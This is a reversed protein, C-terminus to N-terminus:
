ELHERSQGEDHDVPGGQAGSQSASDDKQESEYQSSPGPQGQDHGHGGEVEGLVWEDGAVFGSVQESSFGTWFQPTAQAAKKAQYLERAAQQVQEKVAGAASWVTSFEDLAGINLRLQRRLDDDDYQVFCLAWKALHVTSSGAIVCTFFHTHSLIPVRHTILNSIDTASAIAHRTHANLARGSAVERYPACATISKSQSTDLQSLPKHILLSAGYNMMFAQFIMEDVEGHSNIASRKSAPLNLRWDTLLGELKAIEQESADTISPTRIYQGLNRSSLIRYSFSSFERDDDTFHREDLEDPYRPPPIEGSLFEKEECPLAVDTPVDFLAFDTLRHVSAYMGDIIFLEWWTRRLSEELVPIGQGHLLAFPRTNIALDIALKEADLLTERAKDHERTGDLGVLLVMMAQLLFVDRPSSSSYVRHCAEELLSQRTSGIDIYLSGVWRMAAMLPETRGSPSVHHLFHRPVVFPHAGHFFQYFADLCREALSPLAGRRSSSATNAEPSFIENSSSPALAYLQTGPSASTKRDSPTSGEPSNGRTSGVSAPFYSSALSMQDSSGAESPSVALHKNPNKSSARRPGRYGRRSRM